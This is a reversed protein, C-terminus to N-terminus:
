ESVGAAANFPARGRGPRMIRREAEYSTLAAIARAVASCASFVLRKTFGASAASGFLGGLKYYPLSPTIWLLKLAESAIVEDFLTQLRPNGPDLPRYSEHDKWDINAAEGLRALDGWRGDDSAEAAPSSSTSAATTPLRSV